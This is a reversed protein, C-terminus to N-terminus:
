KKLEHGVSILHRLRTDCDSKIIMSKDTIVGSKTRYTLVYVFWDDNMDEVFVTTQPSHTKTLLYLQKHNNFSKINETIEKKEKKVFKKYM